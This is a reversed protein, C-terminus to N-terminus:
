KVRKLKIENSRVLTLCSEYIKIPISTTYFDTRIPENQYYVLATCGKGVYANLQHLSTRVINTVDAATLNNGPSEFSLAERQYAQFLSEINWRQRNRTSDTMRGRAPQILGGQLSFLDVVPEWNSQNLLFQIRQECTAEGKQRLFSLYDAASLPTRPISAITKVAHAFMVENQFRIECPM